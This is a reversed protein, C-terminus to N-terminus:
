APLIGDIHARLEGFAEVADEYADRAEAYNEVLVPDAGSIQIERHVADCADMLRDLARRSLVYDNVRERAEGDIDALDPVHQRDLTAFDRKLIAWEVDSPPGGTVDDGATYGFRALEVRRGQENALMM